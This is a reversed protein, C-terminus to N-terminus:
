HSESMVTSEDLVRAQVQKKTDQIQVPISDGLAADRLAVASTQVTIMGSRVVLKVIDGRKILPPRELMSPLIVKEAGIFIRAKLGAAEDLSSYGDEQLFTADVTEVGTNLNSILDNNRIPVRAVLLSQKVKVLCTLLSQGVELDTGDEGTEHIVIRLVVNGRWRAETDPPIELRVTRDPVLIDKPVEKPEIDLVATSSLSSLRDSIYKEGFGRIDAGKVWRSSATVACSTGSVFIPNSLGAGKLKLLVLDRGINIRRGPSELRELKIAALEGDPTPSLLDGATVWPGNATVSVKLAYAEVSFASRTACLILFFFIRASRLM